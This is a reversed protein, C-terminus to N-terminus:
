SGGKRFSKWLGRYASAIRIEGKKKNLLVLLCKKDIWYVSAFPAPENQMSWMSLLLAVSMAFVASASIPLGM